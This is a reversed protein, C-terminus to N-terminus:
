PTAGDESTEAQSAPNPDRSSGEKNLHTQCLRNFVEEQKPSLKGNRRALSSVFQREWATLGLNMALRAIQEGLLKRREVNEPRPVYKIFAGCTACEMRAFHVSGTPLEVTQTINHPCYATGMVVGHHM